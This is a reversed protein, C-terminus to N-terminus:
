EGNDYATRIKKGEGDQVYVEKIKDDNDGYVIAQSFSKGSNKESEKRTEEISTKNNKIIKYKNEDYGLDKLFKEGRGKDFNKIKKVTESLNKIADNKIKEVQDNSVETGGDKVIDGYKVQDGDIKLMTNFYEIMQYNEDDIAKLLYVLKTYRQEIKGEKKKLYENSKKIKNEKIIDDIIDKLLVSEGNEEVVEDIIEEIDVEILDKDNDASASSSALVVGTMIVKLAKKLSKNLQIEDNNKNEEFVKEIKKQVEKQEDNNMRKFFLSIQRLIGSNTKEIKEDEVKNKLLNSNQESLDLFFNKEEKM